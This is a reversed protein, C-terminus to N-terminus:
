HNWSRLRTPGLDTVCQLHEPPSSLDGLILPDVAYLSVINCYPRLRLISNLVLSRDLLYHSGIYGLRSIQETTSLLHANTLMEKQETTSLLHANTLMGRQETTSLLHANTLIEKQETTSMLHADTLM